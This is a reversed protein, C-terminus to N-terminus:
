QKLMDLETTCVKRWEKQRDPPLTQIDRYTWKCIPKKEVSVTPLAKSLLYTALRSGGECCLQEVDDESTNTAPPPPVPTNPFQGPLPQQCTDHDEHEIDHVQDTPHRDDGYINDPHIPIRHERGSRCPAPPVAPPPPCQKRPAPPQRISTPVAPPM